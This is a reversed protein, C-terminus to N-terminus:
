ASFDSVTKQMENPTAHELASVAKGYWVVAEQPCFMALAKILGIADGHVEPPFHFILGQVLKAVFADHAEFQGKVIAAESATLSPSQTPSDRPHQLDNLHDLIIRCHRLVAILSYQEKLTLSADMAEFVMPFLTSHLYERPCAVMTDSVM